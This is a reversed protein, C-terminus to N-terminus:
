ATNGMVSQPDTEPHTTGSHPGFPLFSTKQYFARYGPVEFHLYRRDQHWAGIVSWIALGGLFAADVSSGSRVVALASFIAIGMLLPHRTVHLVGHLPKEGGIGGMTPSRHVLSLAGLVAGLSMGAYLVLDAAFPVDWLVALRDGRNRLYIAVAPVFCLAVLLSYGARFGNEGLRTILRPRLPISSLILHVAAFGFMFLAIQLAASVPHGEERPPAPTPAMPAIINEDNVNIDRPTLSTLM